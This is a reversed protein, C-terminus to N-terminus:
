HKRSRGLGYGGGLSVRGRDMVDNSWERDPRDLSDLYRKRQVSTMNKLLPRPTTPKSNEKEFHKKKRHKLLNKRKLQVKCDPCAVFEDRETENTHM